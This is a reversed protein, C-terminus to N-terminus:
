IRTSLRTALLRHFVRALYPGISIPRYEKPSTPVPVKPILVTRSTRLGAPLYGTYLWMNLQALLTRPDLKRLDALSINDSGLAGKKTDRLTAQLETLSVPAILDWLVDCSPEVQRDDARSDKGFVGEWFLVQDSLSHQAPQETWQGALVKRACDARNKSYLKQVRAYETRRRARRGTAARTEAEAKRRGAERRRGRRDPGKRRSGVKIENSIWNNYELDIASKQAM